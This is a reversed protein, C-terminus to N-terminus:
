VVPVNASQVIEFSEIEPDKHVLVTQVADALPLSYVGRDTAYQFGATTNFDLRLPLKDGRLIFISASGRCFRKHCIAAYHRRLVRQTESIENPHPHSSRIQNRQHVTADM